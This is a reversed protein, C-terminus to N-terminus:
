QMMRKERFVPRGANWDQLMALIEEDSLTDGWSNIVALLAPDAGLREAADYIQTVIDQFLPSDSYSTM